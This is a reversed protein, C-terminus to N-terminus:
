DSFDIKNTMDVMEQTSNNYMRRVTNRLTGTAFLIIAATIASLIILYEMTGQAKKNFMSKGGGETLAESVDAQVCVPISRTSVKNFDRFYLM